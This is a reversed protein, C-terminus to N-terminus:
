VLALEKAKTINWGLQEFHEALPIVGKGSYLQKPIEGGRSVL